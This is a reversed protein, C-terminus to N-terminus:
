SRDGTVELGTARVLEVVKQMADTQERQAIPVFTPRSPQRATGFEYFRAYYTQSEVRTKVAFRRATQASVVKVGGILRGTINRYAATVRDRTRSAATELIARAGDRVHTPLRELEAILEDVGRLELRSPM